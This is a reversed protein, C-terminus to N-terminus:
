VLISACSFTANLKCMCKFAGVFPTIENRRENKGLYWSIYITTLLKASAMERKRHSVFEISRSLHDESAAAIKNAVVM